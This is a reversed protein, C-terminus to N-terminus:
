FSQVQALKNNGIQRWIDRCVDKLNHEWFRTVDLDDLLPLLIKSEGLITQM